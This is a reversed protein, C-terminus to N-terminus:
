QGGESELAVSEVTRRRRKLQRYAQDVYTHIESSSRMGYLDEVVKRANELTIQRILRKIEPIWLASMSLENIGLGILMGGALTLCVTNYLTLARGPDLRGLLHMWVHGTVTYLPYGTPHPIGLTWAACALELGDGWWACPAATALYVLLVAGAAAWTLASLIAREHRAFVCAPRRLIHCSVTASRSAASKAPLIM